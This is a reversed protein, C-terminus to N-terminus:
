QVNENLDLVIYDEINLAIDTFQISEYKNLVGRGTGKLKVDIRYVDDLNENYSAIKFKLSSTVPEAGVLNGAGANIEGAIGINDLDMLEGNKNYMIISPEFGIPISNKVNMSLSVGRIEKIITNEDASVDEYGNETDNKGFPEEITYTYELRMDDFALPLNVEYEGNFAMDEGFNLVSYVDSAVGARINVNIKDPINKLLENLNPLVKNEWGDVLSDRRTILIKTKANAEASLNFEMRTNDMDEEGESENDYGVISADAYVKAGTSNDITLKIYPNTFDIYVNKLFDMDEGFGLDLSESIEDIEPEFLGEVSALKIESLNFNSEVIVNNIHTMNDHSFYVIDASRVNGNIEVRESLDIAGGVVEYYGKDTKSFDISEVNVTKTYQLTKTDENYVASGLLVLEGNDVPQDDGLDIYEPFKVRIGDFVLEGVEELMGHSNDDAGRIDLVVDLEVPEAFTIKRVKKVEKPLNDQELNLDIHHEVKRNILYPFKGPFLPSGGDDAPTLEMDIVERYEGFDFNLETEELRFNGSSFSGTSSFAYNGAEDTKLFEIDETNLFESLEIKKSSGIPFSLGKGVGITADVGKSLDYNEDVTCSVLTSLLFVCTVVITCAPNLQKKM